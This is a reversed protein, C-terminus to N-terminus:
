DMTKTLFDVKQWINKQTFFALFFCQKISQISFFAKSVQLTLNKFLPFFQCNEFANAWPKQWYIPKKKVPKKSSLFGSFFKKEINQIPFFAKKSRFLSTRSFDLFDDHQFPTLGHNQEFFRGKKCTKKLLSLWFFFMKEYEPCFLLSKLSSIQLELLTFFRCKKFPNTWPKTM